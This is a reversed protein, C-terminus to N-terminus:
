NSASKGRGTWGQVQSVFADVPITVDFYFNTFRNFLPTRLSSDDALQGYYTSTGASLQLWPLVEYTFDFIAWTLATTNVQSEPLTAVAGGGVDVTEGPLKYLLNNIFMVIAGFSLKDTIKLTGEITNVFRWDVNRKGRHQCEPRSVNQCGDREAVQAQAYRNLVKTFRPSYGLELSKLFRGKLLQFERTFTLGPGVTMITSRGHSEISTPFTFRLNPVVKIDVKPIKLFDPKWVTDFWLDSVVWEHRHDTDDSSTLEIELDLRLKFALDDRLNYAPRFSLSQTYYPNYTLEASRTLSYASFSNEYTFLSGSWPVKKEKKATETLDVNEAALAPGSSSLTAVVVALPGIRKVICRV